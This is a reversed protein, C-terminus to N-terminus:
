GGRPGGRRDRPANPLHRPPSPPPVRSSSPGGPVCYFPEPGAGGTFSCQPRGSSHLPLSPSLVAGSIRPGAALHVATPAYAIAPPPPHATGPPDPSPCEPLPRPPLSAAFPTDPTRQPPRTGPPDGRGGGGEGWRIRVGDGTPRPCAANRLLDPVVLCAVPRQTYEM